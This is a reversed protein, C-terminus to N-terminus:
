LCLTLLYTVCIMESVTALLLFIGSIFRLWLQMLNLMQYYAIVSCIIAVIISMNCVMHLALLPLTFDDQVPLLLLTFFSVSALGLGVCACKKIKSGDYKEWFSTGFVLVMFLAVLESLIIIVEM